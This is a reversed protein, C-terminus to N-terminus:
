STLRLFCIVVLPLVEGRDEQPRHSTADVPVDQNDEFACNFEHSYAHPFSRERRHSTADVELLNLLTRILDVALSFQCGREGALTTPGCLSNVQAICREIHLPSNLTTCLRSIYDFRRKLRCICSCM